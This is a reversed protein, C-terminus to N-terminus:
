TELISKTVHLVKDMDLPKTLYDSVGLEQSKEISQMDSVASLTVVPIDKLDKNGKLIEMFEFGGLGPMKLDLFILGPINKNVLDLGLRGNSATFVSYGNRKLLSKLLVLNTNSDDIILIDKKSM